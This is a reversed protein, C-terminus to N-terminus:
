TSQDKIDSFILAEYTFLEADKWGDRGLGAKRDSCQSLLELADWGTKQAVQPLFTGSTYDKRIMIGHKGPVIEDPSNIKKLPTLISIEIKMRDLEDKRIPNFRSDSSASAVSM